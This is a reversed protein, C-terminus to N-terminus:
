RVYNGTVAIGLWSIFLRRSVTLWIAAKIIATHWTRVGSDFLTLLLHGGLLHHGVM